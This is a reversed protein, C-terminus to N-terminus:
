REKRDNKLVDIDLPVRNSYSFYVFLVFFAAFGFIIKENKIDTENTAQKVRIAENRIKARNGREFTAGYHAKSWEDFNYIPTRGSMTPAEHRARRSQYFKHEPHEEVVEDAQTYQDGATHIIGTFYEYNLILAFINCKGKDYLRRLKFNGLVEYAASIDQFKRSADDSGKNKDPHYMKSLKYFASKIDTQTAKPTIGLVDYHNRFLTNTSYISRCSQKFVPLCYCCRAFM